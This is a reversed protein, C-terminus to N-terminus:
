DQVYETSTDPQEPTHRRQRRLLYVGEGIHLDPHEEHALVAVSGAAVILVTLAAGIDDHATAVGPGDPLLTHTHGGRGALVVRGTAPVPRANRVARDRGIPAQDAPWPWVLVDGQAQPAGAHVQAPDALGLVAALDSLDSLDARAPAPVAPAPLVPVWVAPVGAGFLHAMATQQTSV